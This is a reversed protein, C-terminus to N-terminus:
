REISSPRRLSPNLDRSTGHVVLIRPDGEPGFDRKWTEFLEGRRAYPSSICILPGGTTALSPRIADLIEADTNVNATQGEAFWYAIEDGIVAVCTVGRLGRFSAARIQLDIGTSLSITDATRRQVLRALVPKAEFLAAAYNYVVAAQQENKALFLVIGREGLALVKSHDFM